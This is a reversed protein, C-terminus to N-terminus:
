GKGLIRDVQKEISEQLNRKIEPRVKAYVRVEVAKPVSVAALPRIPLRSKGARQWILNNLGKFATIEKPGVIPKLGGSKLVQAKAGSKPTTTKYATIKLPKGRIFVTAQLESNTARKISMRKSVEGAKVTYQRRVENKLGTRTQRATMNIANKLAKPAEKKMKGLRRELKKLTNKDYSAEVYIM